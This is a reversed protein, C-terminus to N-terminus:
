PGYSVGKANAQDRSTKSSLLKGEALDQMEQLYDSLLSNLSVSSRGSSSGSLGNLFDSVTAPARHSTGGAMPISKPTRTVM